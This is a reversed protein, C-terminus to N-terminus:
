VLAIGTAQQLIDAIGPACALIENGSVLGRGDAIFDSLRGGAERVLVLGALVDWSNIHAEVFGDTRGAAVYAVALSGSGGHRIRMGLDAIATIFKQDTAFPLRPSWGIEVSARDARDVGSVTMPMGDLTAGLDTAALFLEDTMPQYIVGVEAQGRAALGISICFHPIGRAFNATGDIPDIIWTVEGVAGGDEEGMISDDPFAASLRARVLREVESDTATLYDQHGKFDYARGAGSLDLFRRRQLLGAERAIAAAIDRRALLEVTSFHSSM